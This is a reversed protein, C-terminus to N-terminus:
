FPQHVRLGSGALKKLEELMEDASMGREVGVAAAAVESETAVPGSVGATAATAAAAGPTM